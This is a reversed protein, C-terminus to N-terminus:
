PKAIDFARLKQRNQTLLICKHGKPNVSPVQTIKSFFFVPHIAAIFLNSRFPFSRNNPITAMKMELQTGTVAIGVRMGSGVCLVVASGVAVDVCVGVDVNVDVGVGVTVGVALVVGVGVSTGNQSARVDVGSSCPM